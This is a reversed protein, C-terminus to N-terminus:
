GGLVRMLVFAIVLLILVGLCGFRLFARTLKLLTRLVLLLVVLAIAVGGLVLLQELSLGLM